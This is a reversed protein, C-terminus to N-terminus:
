KRNCLDGRLRQIGDVFDQMIKKSPKIALYCDAKMKELLFLLDFSKKGNFYSHSNKARKTQSEALIKTKSARDKLGRM